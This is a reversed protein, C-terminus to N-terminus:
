AHEQVYLNLDEKRLRDGFAELVVDFEQFDRESVFTIAKGERGARGTRGIRHVYEEPNQPVDFNVVHTIEPIDLGRAAVNTAILIDLEGDRFRQVVQDRRRQDMDGHLAGVRIGARDLQEAVFDVGRRTRSFVLTRGKLEREILEHLGHVKDRQAVEFYIQEVTDASTLEPEIAVTEPSEMYRRVLRLIAHPMTASFLATQRARPTRGLIRTIAPLFGIDLMQDAEDLVAYRVDQLGLTGRQLHDLIRGPTGVVIHPRRELARFDRDLSRGGLLGVADFGLPAGLDRLVELVQSALERTPVLVLGQVSQRNPDLRDFMPLGFALTKGTGTQAIGVVDRGGLLAPISSAQIPTPTSFGAHAVVQLVDDSLGLARFAEPLQAPDIPTFAGTRPASAVRQAIEDDPDDGPASDDDDADPFAAEAEEDWDDDSEPAYEGDGQPRGLAMTPALDARGDSDEADDDDDDDDSAEDAAEDSAEVGDGSASAEGGRRRGRGGRRGRRRRKPAEGGETAEVAEPDADPELPQDEDALVPQAPADERPVYHSTGSFLVRGPRRSGPPPRRHAPLISPDGGEAAPRFAVDEPLPADLSERPPRTWRRQGDRNDGDRRGDRQRDSYGGRRRDNRDGNGSPSESRTTSASQQGQREGQPAQAEGGEGKGRGRGGRRGRSRRREQDEANGPQAEVETDLLVRTRPESPAGILAGVIKRFLSM